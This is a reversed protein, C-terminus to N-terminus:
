PLDPSWIPPRVDYFGQLIQRWTADELNFIYIGTVEPPRNGLTFVIERGDPSWDCCLGFPADQLILSTEVNQGDRSMAYHTFTTQDDPLTDYHGDALADYTNLIFEISQGDPRWRWVALNDLEDEFTFLLLPPSVAELEQLYIHWNHNRDRNLALFADGQPSLLYYGSRYPLEFVGIVQSETQDPCVQEVSVTEFETARQIDSWWIVLCDTGPMFDFGRMWDAQEFPTTVLELPNSNNLDALFLRYGQESWAWYAMKAGDPSFRISQIQIEPHINLQSVPRLGSGDSYIQYWGWEHVADDGCISYGAECPGGAFLIPWVPGPIQTFTPSPTFTPTPRRIPEPTLPPKATITALMDEISLTVRPPEPTPEMIFATLMAQIDAPPLTATEGPATNTLASPLPTSSATLRTVPITAAIEPTPTCAALALWLSFILSLLILQKTM